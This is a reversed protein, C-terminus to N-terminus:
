LPYTPAVPDVTHDYIFKTVGIAWPFPLQKGILVALQNIFGPVIVRKGKLIAPYAIDALREPTFMTRRTMARIKQGALQPFETLTGGPYLGCVRLNTRRCEFALLDTFVRVYHKSGSYVSFRPLPAYSGVSGVNVVRSTEGHDLMHPMFFFCLETLARVNLALIQCVHRYDLDHFEQYPSMGAANILVHVNGFLRIAQELVRAPAGPSTIDMALSTVHAAHNQEAEKELLLLRDERRAVALVPHGKRAFMMACARGIGSSAGTIVVNM